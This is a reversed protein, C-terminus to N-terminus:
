AVKIKSKKTKSSSQSQFIPRFVGNLILTLGILGFGSAFVLSVSEELVLAFDFTIVIIAVIVFLIPDRSSLRSRYYIYILATLTFGIGLIFSSSDDCKRRM